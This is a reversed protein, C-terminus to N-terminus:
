CCETSRCFAYCSTQIADSGTGFKANIMYSTGNKSTVIKRNRAAWALYGDTKLRKAEMMAKLETCLIAYVETDTHKMHRGVPCVGNPMSLKDIPVIRQQNGIIWQAIVEHTREYMDSVVGSKGLYAADTSGWHYVQEGM